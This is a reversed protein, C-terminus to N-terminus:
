RIWADDHYSLYNLAIRALRLRYAAFRVAGELALRARDAAEGETLGLPGIRHEAIIRKSSRSSDAPGPEQIEAFRM